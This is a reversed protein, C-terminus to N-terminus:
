FMKVNTDSGRRVAVAALSARLGPSRAPVPSVALGSSRAIPMAPFPSSGVSQLRGSWIDTVRCVGGSCQARIPLIKEDAFTLTYGGDPPTPSPEYILWGGTPSPTV